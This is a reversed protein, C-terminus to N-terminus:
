LFAKLKGLKHLAKLLISCSDVIKYVDDMEVISTADPYKFFMIRIEPFIKFRSDSGVYIEKKDIIETSSRRLDFIRVTVRIAPTYFFGKSNISALNYPFTRVELLFDHMYFEFLNDPSAKIYQISQKKFKSLDLNDGFDYRYRYQM